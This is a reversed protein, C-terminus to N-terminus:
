GVVEAAKRWLLDYAEFNNKTRELLGAPLSDVNRQILRLRECWSTTLDDLDWRYALWFLYKAQGRSQALVLEVIRVQQEPPRGNVVGGDVFYANM